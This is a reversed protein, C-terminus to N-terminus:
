GHNEELGNDSLYPFRLYFSSGRDVKSEVKIHGGHNKVIGYVISLGLGTGKGAEKTTFFPDFIRPLVAPDLGPGDDEITLYVADASSQYCGVLHIRANSGAHDLANDVLNSIAGALADLNPTAAIEDGYCGLFRGNDESTIWLINPTEKNETQSCSFLLCLSLIVLGQFFKHIMTM